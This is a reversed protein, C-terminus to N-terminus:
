WADGREPPAKKKGLGSVRTAKASDSGHNQIAGWAERVADRAGRLITDVWPEAPAIMYDVIDTSWPCEWCHPYNERGGPQELTKIAKLRQESFILDKLSTEDANGVAFNDGHDNCCLGINGDYHVIFQERVQYCPQPLAAVVAEKLGSMMPHTIDTQPRPFVIEWRTFHLRTGRLRRKWFFEQVTREIANRYDYLGVTIEDFADVAERCLKPDRKLVDGNTHIITSFGKQKAYRAFPILRKDLFAESLHHFNITGRYGIDWAEDILRYVRDTPTFKIIPKGNKDKRKGTTDGFRPCFFCDRNCHSTLEIALFKPLGIKFPEM